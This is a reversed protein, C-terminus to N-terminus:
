SVKFGNKSFLMREKNRRVVLGKLRINGVKVWRDFEAAADAYARNNLYKLMTSQKFASGGVNFIFSYLADEMGQTLKVKVSSKIVETCIDLDDCLYNFAERLTVVQGEAVNKTHGFGITWVDAPCKYSQLRLSEFTMILAVGDQSIM